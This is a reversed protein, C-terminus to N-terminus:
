WIHHAISEGCEEYLDLRRNNPLRLKRIIVKPDPGEIHGEFRDSWAGVIDPIEGWHLLDAELSANCTLLLQASFALEVSRVKVEIQLSRMGSRWSATGLFILGPKRNAVGVHVDVNGPYFADGLDTTITILTRIMFDDVVVSSQTLRPAKLFRIYHVM